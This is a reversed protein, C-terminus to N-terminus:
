AILKLHETHDRLMKMGETTGMLRLGKRRANMRSIKFLLDWHRIIEKWAFFISHKPDYIHTPESGAGNLEIISFNKEKSLDEWNKFKIDLRGFYFEPVKSCIHDIANVLEENIKHSLDTFKSGRSHNGYPVLIHRVGEPLITQLFNGYLTKLVPLQLIYRDEQQLLTIITSRGNGTVALFEKGVIGSIHGRKEGPIRYYFIGAEQEYDIFDQILFDVKSETKYARLDEAHHLIKVKVGREGIDPKAILPFNFGDKELMKELQAIEIDPEILTTKPYYAKPITDYIKSKRELAFGSNEILPNAASFFFFSRAKFSLWFWYVYMPIYVLQFPWYEWNFTKILLRKTAWGIKYLQGDTVIKDQRCSLSVVYKQNAKLDLYTLCTSFSSVFVSTISVTSLKSKRDIILDNEPDGNGAFRHFHLIKDKNLEQDSEIWTKFWRERDNVIEQEYLTVSSWIHPISEDMLLNHKRLGDWRLTRLQGGSYLVLTFPAINELDITKFHGAPENAQIVELFILGRSKRYSLAPIHKIFAGNLLVAADGNTKTAIWSGGGDEDKPYILEYGNTVYKKPRIARSRTAHEDRNSTIHIGSNSPIFTVTCM